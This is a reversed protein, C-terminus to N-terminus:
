ATPALEISLDPDSAIRALENHARRETLLPIYDRIVSQEFRMHADEVATAILGAPLQAFKSVLRREVADILERESQKLMSIIRLGTVRPDVHM